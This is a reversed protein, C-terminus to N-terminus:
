TKSFSINNIWKSKKQDQKRTSYRVDHGIYDYHSIHPNGNFDVDIACYLGVSPEDEDAIEKGWVGSTNAAYMLKGRIGDTTCYSIHVKDQNDM